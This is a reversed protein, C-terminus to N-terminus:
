IINDNLSRELLARNLTSLVKLHSNEWDALKNLLKKEEDTDVADFNERYFDASRIEFSMAASIAAAEYSAAKIQNIIEDTLVTKLLNDSTEPISLDDASINSNSKLLKLLAKEHTDEEAALTEFIERIGDLSTDAATKEYFIRGQQEFLIAKKIIEIKKNSM